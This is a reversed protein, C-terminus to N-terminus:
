GQGVGCCGGAGARNYRVCPAAVPGAGAGGAAFGCVRLRRGDTQVTVAGARDTRWVAAGAARLRALVGRGPMGYANRGVQIVAARPAVASLFAGTSSSESGHHSVKIVDSALDIGAAAIDREGEAELDGTFLLRVSGFSLRFVLSNNNEDAPTGALWPRRPHLVEATVGPAPRLLDGRALRRRPVAKRAAAADLEDVVAGRAPYGSEWIEGVPFCRLIPIAGGVHDADAHSLVLYDVRRVGRWRLYRGLPGVARQSCAVAGSRGEEGPGAYAAGPGTAPGGDVVMVRDGPLFVVVGDGQGVHVFVAELPWRGSAPWHLWLALAAFGWWAARVLLAEAPAAGPGQPCRRPGFVAGGSCPGARPAGIRFLRALCLYYVAVGAAGPPRVVVAAGPWSAFWAAVGDLLGLVPETLRHALWGLPLWAAGAATGALGLTVAWGALPVAPLNALPAVLSVAGFHCLLLPLTALQAAASVALSSVLWGPPGGPWVRGLGTALASEVQPALLILGATAAFSLQLGPDFLASPRMVLIALFALALLNLGDAPRGLHRGAAWAAFMVAARVVPPGSGTMFVYLVLASVVLALRPGSGLPLLGAVAQLAGAVFGVHLGSVSLVHSLGSRRFAESVAPDIGTRDGLILGKLLAARAPPLTADIVAEARRRWSLSLAVLPNGGGVGPLVRVAEASGRSPVLIFAIGQRRLFARYDFEGPNRAPEPEQLRGVVEVGDGYRGPFRPARLLVLAGSRRWRARHQVRDLRLPVRWGAGSRVPDGAIVGRVVVEQGALPRLGGEVTGERLSFLLGGACACALLLLWSAARRGPAAAGLVLCLGAAGWWAPAPGGVAAASAIGAAVAGSVPVLPRSVM